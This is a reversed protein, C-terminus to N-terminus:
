IRMLIKKRIYLKYTGKIEIQVDCNNSLTHTHWHTGQQTEICEKSPPVYEVQIMQQVIKNYLEIPFFNEQIFVKSM